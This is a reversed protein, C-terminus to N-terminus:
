NHYSAVENRLFIMHITSGRVKKLKLTEVKGILQNLMVNM